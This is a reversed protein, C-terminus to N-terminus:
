DLSSYRWSRYSGSYTLWNGSEGAAHVLREYTVQGAASEAWSIAALLAVTLRSIKMVIENRGCHPSIHSLIM